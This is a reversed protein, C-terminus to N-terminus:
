AGGTDGLGVRRLLTLTESLPLGVVNTYSGQVRDVLAGGHGQIGYAGAKDRPEGTAVYRAVDDDTLARFRVATTVVVCEEGGPHRLVVATHVFHPRGSLRRLLVAAERDDAPKGLIAGDLAVTTDAALVVAAPDPHTAAKARAVRLVYSAPDEGPLPTEDADAPRVIFPIGASTLLAARRPSASALVLSM